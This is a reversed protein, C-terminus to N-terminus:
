TTGSVFVEVFQEVIEDFSLEPEVPESLLGLSISYSFFMGWFAQAAAEAHLPRVTGQDMQKELYRALVLRLQRPNQALVEGVEPFHSAECLMLLMAEQRDVLVKMIQQGMKVLDQRYDGTFHVEMESTIAPAAFTDIVAAFLGQKSGFHRFLTVENVGAAAALERTTARAYGQGAFVRAAAELLRARTEPTQTEHEPEQVETAETL